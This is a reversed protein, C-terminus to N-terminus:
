LLEHHDKRGPIEQVLTKTTLGLAPNSPTPRPTLALAFSTASTVRFSGGVCRIAIGTAIRVFYTITKDRDIAICIVEGMIDPQSRYNGPSQEHGSLVMHTLVIEGIGCKTEFKM